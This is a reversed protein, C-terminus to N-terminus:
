VTVSCSLDISPSTGSILVIEKSDVTGWIEGGERRELTIEICWTDNYITNSTALVMLKGGVNAMQCVSYRLYPLGDDLGKVPNWVMEVPDFVVIPHKLVCLVDFSYLLDEIVCCPQRWFDMLTSSELGLSQWTGQRPEYVLACLADLIYIRDQMVVSTVFGGGPMNSNYHSPDPVTSWVGNDVDFVEIWGDYAHPRECGGIVYIKRDIVGAAARYRARHMSPLNDWAHFRCDLVFVTSVPHNFGNLGGIVYMNYGFTVVSSGPYMPPFTPVERLSESINLNLIHWRSFREYSYPFGILAYLVPETLGLQLRRIYLEPSSIVRFFARSILSLKPYQCRPVLAVIRAILLEPIQRPPITPALNEVEEQPPIAPALNEVEEQDEESPNTHLEERPDGGGDNLEEDSFQFIPDM